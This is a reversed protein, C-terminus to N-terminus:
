LRIRTYRNGDLANTSYFGWKGCFVAMSRRELGGIAKGSNCDL